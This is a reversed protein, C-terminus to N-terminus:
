SYAEIKIIELRFEGSQKDSILFGFNHINAVDLSPVNDPESGRYTPNFESFPLKIQVFEDPKTDFRQEYSWAHTKAGEGTQIRFSYRNGDGKLNLHIGSYGALNLPERNKVSAFGGNNELSVEGLFVANGQDNLQLRSSSIGGMVGDNVIQWQQHAMNTFDTILRNKMTKESFTILEQKRKASHM